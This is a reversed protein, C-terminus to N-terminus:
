SKFKGSFSYVSHELVTFVTLSCVTYELERTIGKKNDSHSPQSLSQLTQQRPNSTIRFEGVFKQFVMNKTFNTFITKWTKFIKRFSASFKRFNECTTYIYSVVRAEDPIKGFNESVM